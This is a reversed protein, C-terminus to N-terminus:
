VDELVLSDFCTETGWTVWVIHVAVGFGVSGTCWEALYPVTQETTYCKLSQWIDTSGSSLPEGACM